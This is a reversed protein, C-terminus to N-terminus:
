SELHGQHNVCILGSILCKFLFYPDPMGGIMSVLKLSLLM